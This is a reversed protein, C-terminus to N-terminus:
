AEKGCFFVSTGSTKLSRVGEEEGEAAYTDRIENRAGMLCPSSSITPGKSKKEVGDASRTIPINERKLFGL